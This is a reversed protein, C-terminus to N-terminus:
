YRHLGAGSLHVGDVLFSPLRTPIQQHKVVDINNETACLRDLKATDAMTSDLDNTGIVLILLCPRHGALKDCLGSLGLTPITAGGKYSFYCKTLGAIFEFNQIITKPM